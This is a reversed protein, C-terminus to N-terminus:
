IVGILGVFHETLRSLNYKKSYVQRYGAIDKECFKLTIQGQGQGLHMKKIEPSRLLIGLHMPM